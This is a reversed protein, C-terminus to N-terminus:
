LLIPFLTVRDDEIATYAEPIKEILPLKIM